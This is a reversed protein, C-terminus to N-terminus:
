MTNLTAPAGAFNTRVFSEFEAPGGDEPRWFEEVQQLGRLLRLRQGDGYQAIIDRQLKASSARMWAAPNGNTSVSNDPLTAATQMSIEQAGLSLALFQSLLVLAKMCTRRM